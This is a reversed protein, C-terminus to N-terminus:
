HFEPPKEVSKDALFVKMGRNACEKEFGSIDSVGPSFCAEIGILDDPILYGGDGNPGLRILKKDTVRPHLLDMMSQLQSLGTKGTAHINFYHFIGSRLFRTLQDRGRLRQSNQILTTLKNIM